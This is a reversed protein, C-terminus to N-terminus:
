SLSRELVRGAAATGERICVPVGPGRYSAGALALGPRGALSADLRALRERHGVRYRPMAHPWRAVVHDLPPEDLGLADAVEATVQAVLAADDLDDSRPDGARGASVRVLLPGGALHPWKESLVTAAKMLRGESRPVLVGTQDLKRPPYALVVVAASTHVLETLVDPAPHLIGAAVNAPVALVVRLTTVERDAFTCRWGRGLPELRHVPAGVIVQTHRLSAVTAPALRALGGRIGVLPRTGRAAPAGPSSTAAAVHPAAVQLSLEDPDDGFVGGVLPEVLRELVQRGFRRRVYHGLSADGDPLPARPRMWGVGARALGFPSLIRSSVVPAVRVPGGLDLGQPLPRLVGGTWLSTASPRATVLDGGLGVAWALDVAEPTRTALAEAGLEVTRDALRVSRIRGGLRTGAELLLTECGAADLARAAALGTIGGGVVVADVHDM